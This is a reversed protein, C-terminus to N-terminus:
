SCHAGRINQGNVGNKVSCGVLIVLAVTCLFSTILDMIKVMFNLEVLQIVKNVVPRTCPPASLWFLKENQHRSPLLSALRWSQLVNKVNCTSDITSTMCQMCQTDRDRIGQCCTCQLPGPSQSLEKCWHGVQSYSDLLRARSLVALHKDALAVTVSVQSM